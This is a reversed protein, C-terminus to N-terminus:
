PRQSSLFSNQPRLQEVVTDHEGAEVEIVRRARGNISPAWIVLEHRGAPLSMDRLPAEGLLSGGNLYVFAPVEPSVVLTLKGRETATPRYAADVHRVPVATGEFQQRQQSSQAPRASTWQAPSQADMSAQQVELAPVPPLAPRMAQAPRIPVDVEPLTELASGALHYSVFASAVGALLVGSWFGAAAFRNPRPLHHRRCSPCFWSERPILNRCHPCKM